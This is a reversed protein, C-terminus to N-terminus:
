GAPSLLYMPPVVNDAPPRLSVSDNTLYIVDPMWMPAFWAEEVLYRNLDQAAQASEAETGTQIIRIWETIEARESGLPNWQASPQIFSQINRWDNITSLSMLILPHRGSAVEGFFATGDVPEIVLEIGIDRLMQQVQALTASNIVPPVPMTMTFGDPAAEAMLERARDPDFLYRNDLEPLHGATVPGFAQDTATGNGQVIVELMAHTDLAYNIAQRVRVDALEPILTGDRDFLVLGHWDLPWSTRILGADQLQDLAGLDGIFTGADIQGGLFANAMATGDAYMAVTVTEFRQWSTDWYGPNHRFTYSAGRVSADADLIYPGSGVPNANVDPDDWSAP